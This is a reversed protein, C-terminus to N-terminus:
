WLIKCSRVHPLLSPIIPWDIDRTDSTPRVRERVIGRARNYLRPTGPSVDAVAEAFASTTDNLSRPSGPPRAPWSCAACVITM